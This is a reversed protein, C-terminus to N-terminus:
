AHGQQSVESRPQAAGGLRPIFMSIQEKYERYLHGFRQLLDREEFQLAILFYGTTAVAFILHGLTMRPTAWFAIFFGLMIPHRLYRYLGPTQFELPSPEHRRLHAYVQKLGFLHAHSIMFTAILVIGWGLGFLGWLAVRVWQVQADWIITPLPRWPWFLLILALSALLVYTSREIAEPVIRTWWRKFALRAMGTHQIAFLGLLLANVIQARGFPVGNGSDISKPVSVNGVFGIAYLFTCLFVLNCVAGYVFSLKRNM